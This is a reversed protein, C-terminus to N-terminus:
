LLEQKALTFRTRRQPRQKESAPLTHHDITTCYQSRNRSLLAARASATLKPQREMQGLLVRLPFPSETYNRVMCAFETHKAYKRMSQLFEPYHQLNASMGGCIGYQRGIMFSTLITSM